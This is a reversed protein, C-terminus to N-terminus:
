KAIKVLLLGGAVAGVWWYKKALAMWDQKEGYCKLAAAGTLNRCPSVSLDTNSFAKEAQSINYTATSNGGFKAQDYGTSVYQPKFGESKIKEIIANDQLNGQVEWSM